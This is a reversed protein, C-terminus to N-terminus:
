DIAPKGLWFRLGRDDKRGFPSFDFCTENDLCISLARNLIVRHLFYQCHLTTNNFFFFLSLFLFYIM